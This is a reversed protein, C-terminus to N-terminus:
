GRVTKSIKDLVANVLKPEGGDYFGKAVNTYDNIIIGADVDGNALLEFAGARLIGDLLIEVDDHNGAGLSGSVMRDIDMAREQIGLVIMKLMDQDAPVFVDGDLDFGIRNEIFDTLASRADQNNMRMQYLVQVSALRAATRRARASGETLKIVRKEPARGLGQKKQKEKSQDPM